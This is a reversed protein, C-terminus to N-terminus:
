HAQVLTVGPVELAPGTGAYGRLIQTDCVCRHGLYVCDGVPVPTYELPVDDLFRRKLEDLFAQQIEAAESSVGLDGAAHRLLKDIMPLVM